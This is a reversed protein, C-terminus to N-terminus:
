NITITKLAGSHPTVRANVNKNFNGCYDTLLTNLDSPTITGSLTDNGTFYMLDARNQSHGRIGLTHGMEHAATLVDNYDSGTIGLNMDASSMTGSDEYYSLITKGLEDGAGGTFKYFEVTVDADSKNNVFQYSPGNGNTATVWRNFGQIALAQRAASYNADRTFYIRIPFLTWRYLIVSGAYNPAYSSNDCTRPIATPRPKATPAVSPGSGGGGCSSLGLSLSLLAAGFVPVRASAFKIKM